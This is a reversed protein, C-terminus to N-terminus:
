EVVENKRTSYIIKLMQVERLAMKIQTIIGMQTNEDVKLAAMMKNRKIEIQGMRENEIFNKIDKVDAVADNIQIRSSTGMTGQDAIKPKSVYITSVLSKDTMKKVESAKPLVPKQLVMDTERMVTVTMFFFLLMFVIDPLSATSIAPTDKKGDKRIFKAM